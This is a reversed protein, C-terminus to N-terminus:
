YASYQKEETLSSGLLANIDRKIRSREDNTHYVARALRVFDADFNQQAEKARIDDEIVWLRENVARLAAKLVALEPHDGPPQESAQRLASLERRVNALATPSALRQEKIELITIKDFLEGWSVAVAPQAGGAKPLLARSSPSDAVLRRLDRAVAEFAPEWQDPQRQRYLRMTPYWPTDPRELLWRWDPAYKLVMWVPRGLAGALHAV